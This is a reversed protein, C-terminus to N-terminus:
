KLCAVIKDCLAMTKVNDAADTIPTKDNAICDLFHQIEGVYGNLHLDRWGGSSSTSVPTMVVDEEDLTTWRPGKTTVPKDFHYRVNMMNEVKVFGKTGTICIEEWHRKWAPIGGFFMSGIIGSDFRMTFINDVEVDVSNTYGHIDIVEGFFHRMLDVYHIGGVKTFIQNDWGPRGSTIAFMGMFSLKKGFQEENNMIEKMISYSPSFRKMFGVMVKKGTKASLEAVKAAEEENMGLPKEVFVDLGSNLCDIVISAQSAADTIVFVADLSENQIMKKYDDYANVINFREAAAQARDLHRACVAQMPQGLMHLTSFINAKAHVGCGIMGLKLSKIDKM